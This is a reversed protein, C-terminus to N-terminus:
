WCRSYGCFCKECNETHILPAGCDPCPLGEPRMALVSAMQEHRQEAPHFSALAKAIADWLSLVRNAGVGYPNGDQIGILQRTIEHMPIRYRLALSILRCVCELDAQIMGGAKAVTAFTEFPEDSMSNITLYMKGYSTNIAITEGSVRVPRELKLPQIAAAYPQPATDGATSDSFEMTKMESPKDNTKKEKSSVGVNMVQEERSGDRYVTIGKCGLDYAMLYAKMVDDITAETPLNITKSVGSDTYQQFAAQMRVHWEPAVDHATVFVRQWPEPIEQVGRASGHNNLIKEMLGETWFGERKATEIFDELVYPLHEGDMVNKFWILSFEPECGGSTDAIMSITGTPAVTTVYSNRVRQGRGEHLSGKWAPYLGRQEALRMSQEYGKDSIFKMVKAGMEVGSESDYQIGLKFLMRAFGMVGLGIKRNDKTCKEIEPIPYKNMDIVNDLLHVSTRISQELRAWDMEHRGDQTPVVHTELNVSGLNCSEYPLLPQEGCPNTAEIMAYHPTPNTRNAQDIFFLGPEGNRWASEAIKKLVDRADLQRIVKGSRPNILDYKEGTLAAKMFADTVAVSINFNTIEKTDTKCSIFDLVDPHDVRLIGMNAGRRTGGQKIHETSQNYVKMFSVPGSAVGGTSRVMDDKPRLRSFSFGTGGGTQHILAQHKLTDYIGAISDEVPLVFCAALQQLPRGANMLTPSNPLFDLRSMLQYFREETAQVEEPQAGYLSEAQALNHAVRRFLGEPTEVVKGHEDKALYRKQLVRLANPSIRLSGEGKGSEVNPAAGGTNNM